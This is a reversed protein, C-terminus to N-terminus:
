RRRAGAGRLRRRGLVLQDLPAALAQAVELARPLDAEDVGEGAEGGALEELAEEQLLRPIIPAHGRRDILQHVLPARREPAAVGSARAVGELAGELM